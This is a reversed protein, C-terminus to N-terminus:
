FSLKDLDILNNYVENIGDEDEEHIDKNLKKVLICFIKMNPHEKGFRRLIKKYLTKQRDYSNNCCRCEM